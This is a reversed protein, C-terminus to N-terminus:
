TLVVKGVRYLGELISLLLVLGVLILLLHFLTRTM